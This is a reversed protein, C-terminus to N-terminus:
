RIRQLEHWDLKEKGIAIIQDPNLIIEAIGKKTTIKKRVTCQRLKLFAPNEEWKEIGECEIEIDNQCYIWM